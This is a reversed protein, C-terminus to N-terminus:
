LDTPQWASRLSMTEYFTRATRCGTSPGLNLTPMAGNATICWWLDNAPWPEDPIGFTIQGDGGFRTGLVSFLEGYDNISLLRGDAILTNQPCNQDNFVLHMQGIVGQGSGASM